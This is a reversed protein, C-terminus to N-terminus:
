LQQSHTNVSADRIQESWYVGPEKDQMEEYVSVLGWMKIEEKELLQQMYLDSYLAMPPAKQAKLWSHLLKINECTCLVRCRCSIACVTAYKIAVVELVSCQNLSQM